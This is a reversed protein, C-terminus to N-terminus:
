MKKKTIRFSTMKKTKVKKQIKKKKPKTKPKPRARPKPQTVAIVTALAADNKEVVPASEEEVKSEYTELNDAKPANM